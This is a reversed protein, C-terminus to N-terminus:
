QDRKGIGQQCTTFSNKKNNNKSNKKKYKQSAERIYYISRGGGQHPSLVPHTLFTPPGSGQMRGARLEAVSALQLVAGRKGGGGPFM